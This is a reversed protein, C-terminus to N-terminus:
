PVVVVVALVFVMMAFAVVVVMAFGMMAVAVVLAFVVVAVVVLGEEQSLALVEGELHSTYSAFVEYKCGVSAQV